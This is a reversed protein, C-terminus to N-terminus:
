GIVGSARLEAIRAASFGAGSLITSTDAGSEVPKAVAPRYGSFRPAPAPQVVGDVEVFTERARLHPHEIAEAISMVPAVCADGDSFVEVWEARTRRGFAAALEARLDPWSSLDYQRPAWDDVLGLRAILESFFQPELAGVAV